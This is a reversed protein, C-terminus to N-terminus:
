KKVINWMQRVMWCCKERRWTLNHMPWRFYLCFDVVWPLFSHAVSRGILSHISTRNRTRCFLRSFCWGNKNSAIYNRLYTIHAMDLKLARLSAGFIGSCWWSVLSFRCEFLSLFGRFILGAFLQHHSRFVQPTMCFDKDKDGFISRKPIADWLDHHELSGTLQSSVFNVKDLTLSAKRRSGM